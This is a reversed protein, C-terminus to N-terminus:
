DRLIVNKGETDGLCRVARVAALRCFCTIQSEAPGCNRVSNKDALGRSDEGIEGDAERLNASNASSLFEILAYVEADLLLPATTAPSAIFGPRSFVADSM